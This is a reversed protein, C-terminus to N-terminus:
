SAKACRCISTRSHCFSPHRAWAKRAGSASRCTPNPYGAKIKSFDDLNRIPRDAIMVRYPGRRWIEGLNIIRQNGNKIIEQQVRRSILSRLWAEFHDRDVFTFPTGAIRLDDSFPELLEYGTNVMDQVGLKVNQIQQVGNGLQNNHFVVSASTANRSKRPSSSTPRRRSRRQGSMTAWGFCPQAALSTAYTM